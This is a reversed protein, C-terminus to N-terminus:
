ATGTNFNTEFRKTLVDCGHDYRRAKNDDSTHHLAFVISERDPVGRMLGAAELLIDATSAYGSKVGLLSLLEVLQEVTNMELPSQYSGAFQQIFKQSNTFSGGTEFHVSAPLVLQAEQATESMFLDQVVLFDIKDLVEKISEKDIACGLPDESFIFANKIDGNKLLSFQEQEVHDSMREVGWANALSSIVSHDTM